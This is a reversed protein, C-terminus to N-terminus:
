FALTTGTNGKIMRTEEVSMSGAGIFANAAGLSGNTGISSVNASTRAQVDITYVGSVCNPAVFNFANANLTKLILQLEEPTACTVVGGALLNATCNLGSFRARLTQIRDAFVIGDGVNNNADVGTRPEAYSVTGDPATLKVRVRITARAEATDDSGNLSKVTTDTVIGSQLSVGLFLDKQNALKLQQRLVIQWDSDASCGPSRCDTQLAILPNYAFTAKASPLQTQAFAPAAVLASIAAATLGLKLGHM